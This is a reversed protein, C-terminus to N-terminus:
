NNSINSSFICIFFLCLLENLAYFISVKFEVMSLDSRFEQSVYLVTFTTDM